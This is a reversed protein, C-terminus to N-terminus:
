LRLVGTADLSQRQCRYGLDASRAQCHTADWDGQGRPTAKLRTCPLQCMRKRFHKQATLGRERAALREYGWARSEEPLEQQGVERGEVCGEDVWASLTSGEPTGEMPFEKEVAM